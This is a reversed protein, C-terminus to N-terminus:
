VPSGIVQPREVSGHSVNRRKMTDKRSISESTAASPGHSSSAPIHALVDHLRALSGAKVAVARQKFQM